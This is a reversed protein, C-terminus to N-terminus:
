VPVCQNRDMAHDQTLRQPAHERVELVSRASRVRAKGPPRRTAVTVSNSETDLLGQNAGGKGARLSQDLCM